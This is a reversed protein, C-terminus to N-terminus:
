IHSGRLFVALLAARRSHGGASGGLMCPHAVARGDCALLVPFCSTLIAKFNTRFTSPTEESIVTNCCFTHSETWRVTTSLACHLPGVRLPSCLFTAEVAPGFWSSSSYICFYRTRSLFPLLPVHFLHALIDTSSLDLFIAFFSLVM